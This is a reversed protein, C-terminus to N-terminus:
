ILYKKMDKLKEYRDHYDYGDKILQTDAKQLAKLLALESETATNRLDKGIRGFVLKNIMNAENSYIYHPTRKDGSALMLAETVEKFGDGCENRFLIVNDWFWKVVILKWQPNLWMGLDVMIYPHLWTGGNKGRKTKIVGNEYDSENSNNQIDMLVVDMYEKTEKNDLYNQLRKSEGTKANYADVLDNANFFATKSDQRVSVGEIIRHVSVSTKM